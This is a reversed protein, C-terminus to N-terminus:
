DGLRSHTSQVSGMLPTAREEARPHKHSRRPDGDPRFRFIAEGFVSRYPAVELLLYVAYSAALAAALITPFYIAAAAGINLNGLAMKQFLVRLPYYAYPHALYMSYSITGLFSVWKLYSVHAFIGDPVTMVFFFTASAAVLVVSLPSM